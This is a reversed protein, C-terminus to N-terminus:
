QSLGLVTAPAEKDIYYVYWLNFVLSIEGKDVSTWISRDVGIDCGFQVRKDSRLKVLSERIFLENGVFNNDLCNVFRTGAGELRVAGLIFGGEGYTNIGTSPDLPLPWGNGVNKFEIVYPAIEEGLKNTYVILPSTQRVLNVKIPAGPSNIVSAQLNTPEGLDQMRKFEVNSFTPVSIRANSNYLFSVRVTPKYPVRLGEPLIPPTLYWDTTFSQGPKNQDKNPPVMASWTRVFESRYDGCVSTQAFSNFSNAFFTTVSTATLRNYNVCAAAQSGYAVGSYCINLSSPTYVFSLGSRPYLIPVNGNQDRWGDVNYLEAKICRATTGGVNEVDLSFRVTDEPNAIKPDVSFENIILGNNDDIKVEKQTCGSIVVLSLILILLYYKM